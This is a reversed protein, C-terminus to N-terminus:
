SFYFTDDVGLNPKLVDCWMKYMYGGEIFKFDYRAWLKLGIDYVVETGRKSLSRGSGHM